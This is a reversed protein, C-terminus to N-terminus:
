ALAIHKGAQAGRSFGHGDLDKARVQAIHQEGGWSAGFGDHPQIRANARAHLHGHDIGGAFQQVGAGDVRMFRPAIPLASAMGQSGQAGLMLHAQDGNAVACGATFGIAESAFDDLAGLQGRQM